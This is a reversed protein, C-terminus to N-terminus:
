NRNNALKNRMVKDRLSALIEPDMHFADCVALMAPEDLDWCKWCTLCDYIWDRSAQSSEPGSMVTGIRGHRVTCHEECGKIVVIPVDM